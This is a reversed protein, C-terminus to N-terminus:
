SADMSCLSPTLDRSSSTLSTTEFRGQGGPSFCDTARPCLATVPVAVMHRWVKVYDFHSHVGNRSNRSKVERSCRDREARLGLALNQSCFGDLSRPRWGAPCWARLGDAVLQGGDLVFEADVGMGLVGGEEFREKAGPMTSFSHVLSKTRSCKRM